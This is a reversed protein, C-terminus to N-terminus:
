WLREVEAVAEGLMGAGALAPLMFTWFYPGSRALKADTGDLIRRLVARAQEGSCFGALVCWTNTQQSVQELQCGGRVGDVFAGERANWFKRAAVAALAGARRRLEDAGAEGCAEELEALARLAIVLLANMAANCGRRDIGPEEVNHWGMGPRDIFVNFTPSVLLDAATEARRVWEIPTVYPRGSEDLHQDRFEWDFAFLGEANTQGLFWDM